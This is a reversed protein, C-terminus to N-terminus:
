GEEKFPRVWVRVRQPGAAVQARAVAAEIRAWGIDDLIIHVEGIVVEQGRVLQNFRWENISVRHLDAM